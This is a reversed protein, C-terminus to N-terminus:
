MRARCRAVGAGCSSARPPTTGRRGRARRSGKTTGLSHAPLRLSAARLAQHQSQNEELAENTQPTTKRTRKATNFRHCPWSMQLSDSETSASAESSDSARFSDSGVSASAKKASCTPVLGTRSGSAATPSRGSALERRPVVGTAGPTVRSAVPPDRAPNVMGLGAPAFARRAHACETAPGLM